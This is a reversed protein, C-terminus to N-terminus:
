RKQYAARISFKKADTEALDLINRANRFVVRGSAARHRCGDPHANAIKQQRYHPAGAIAQRVYVGAQIHHDRDTTSTFNVFLVGRLRGNPGTLPFRYESEQYVMDEGRFRGFTYGRGTKQRQDYGLAPLALYPLQGSTHFNGYIWFALVNRSPNPYGPSGPSFDRGDLSYYARGDILLAQSNQSSGFTTSNVQYNVNFYYGTYGNIANDRDDYL